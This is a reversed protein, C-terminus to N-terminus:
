SISLYKFYVMVKGPHSQSTRTLTHIHIDTHLHTHTHTHTCTLACISKPIHPCLSANLFSTPFFQSCQKGLRREKGTLSLTLLTFLIRLSLLTPQTIAGWCCGYGVGEFREIYNQLHSYIISRSIFLNNRIIQTSWSIRFGVLFSWLHPHSQLIWPHPCGRWAPFSPSTSQERFSGCPLLGAM